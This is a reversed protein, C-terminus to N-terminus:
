KLPSLEVEVNRFGVKAAASMAADLSKYAKPEKPNRASSAYTWYGRGRVALNYQKKNSASMIALAEIILAEHLHGKNFKKALDGELTCVSDKVWGTFKKGDLKSTSSKM